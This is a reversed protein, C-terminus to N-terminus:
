TAGFKMSFLYIFITFHKQSYKSHDALISHGLGNVNLHGIPGIEAAFCITTNFQAELKSFWLQYGPRIEISPESNLSAVLLVRNKKKKTIIIILLWHKSLCEGPLVYLFHRLIQPITNIPCISLSIAYTKSM